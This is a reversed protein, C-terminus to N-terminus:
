SAAAASVAAAANVFVGIPRAPDCSIESGTAVLIEKVREHTLSPNVELMLAIVGAIKPAAGSTGGFSNTYSDPGDSGCTVDHDKDGPASVIIRPGWNSYQGAINASSDYITGGILISGTEPIPTGDDGVSADRGGNGAAVCVICGRAIADRIADGVTLVMEYNGRSGTQAELNIILPRDFPKHRVVWDIANTFPEGPLATGASGSAQIPWLTAGYAIGVIGESNSAAGALGLVATGHYIRAGASVNATGDVANYAHTMDINTLDQHATLCGFDLDAIIVNRGSARQWADRVRCRYLYWQKELHTNPDESLKDTSGLLPDNPIENAPIAAPLIVARAVQQLGRIESLASSLEVSSPFTLELFRLKRSERSSPDVADAHPGGSFNGVSRYTHIVKSVAYKDFVSHLESFNAERLPTVRYLSDASQEFGRVAEQLEVQITDLPPGQRQNDARASGFRDGDTTGVERRM